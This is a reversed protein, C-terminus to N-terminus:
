EGGADPAVPGGRLSRRPDVEGEYFAPLYVSEPIKYPGDLYDPLLEPFRQYLPVMADVFLDGMLKGVVERYHIFNEATDRDRVFAASQDLHAGIRALLHSLEKADDPTM